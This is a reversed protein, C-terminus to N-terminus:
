IWWCGGGGGGVGVGVGVGVGGGGGGGGVCVCRHIAAIRFHVSLWEPVCPLTRTTGGEKIFHIITLQM